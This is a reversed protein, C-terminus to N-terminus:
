IEEQPTLKDVALAQIDAPFYQLDEELVEIWGDKIDGLYITGSDAKHGKRMAAFRNELEPDKPNIYKMM